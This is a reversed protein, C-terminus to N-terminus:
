SFPYSTLSVDSGHLLQMTALEAMAYRTSILLITAAIFRRQKWVTYVEQQGTIIYEYLVLAPLFTLM